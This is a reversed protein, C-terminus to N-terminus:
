CSRLRADFPPTADVTRMTHLITAELQEAPGAMAFATVSFLRARKGLHLPKLKTSLTVVHGRIKSRVKLRTDDHYGAGLRSSGNTLGDNGDLIGGFARRKGGSFELSLHEVQTATELRVVYQLRDAPPTSQPVANYGALAAAMAKPNARALSFKAVLRKGSRCVRSTRLDLGYLNKAGKVNPWTADKRADHVRNNRPSRGHVSRGALLAPGSIQQAFKVFPMERPASRDEPTQFGSNNDGFTVILKGNVDNDIGIMDALSRDKQPVTAACTTGSTCINGTHIPRHTVQATAIRPKTGLAGTIVAVYAHWKAKVPAEGSSYPKAPCTLVGALCPHKTKTGEYLVAVRGASGGTIETFIASKVWSPTVRMRPTWYTAPRGGQSPDNRPDDIPSGQVYVIGGQVYTVYANGHNDLALWVFLEPLGTTVVNTQWATPDQYDQGKVSAVNITPNSPDFVWYPQYLWGRGPGDSNDFASQGSQGVQQIQPAPQSIPVGNTDIGQVFEGIPPVHYSLFAEIPTGAVNVLSPDAAALWQRDTGSASNTAAFQRAPPFTDGHDTSSAVSEQALSEQDAFFLNGNIPNVASETDGGGGTQCTPRSREACTPDYLLRFTKGGDTSRNLQGTNSRSSLPWDVYFYNPKVAGPTAGTAHKEAITQPETGLFHASVISAPGFRINSKVFTPHPKAAAPAKADSLSFAFTLLVALSAVLALSKRLM